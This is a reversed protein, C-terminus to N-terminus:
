AVRELHVNKWTPVAQRFDVAEGDCTFFLGAEFEVILKLDDLYLWGNKQQISVTQVPTGWQRLQYRGVYQAWGPDNPGPPDNTARDNYDLSIEGESCELHSPETGQAGFHRYTRVEGDAAARVASDPCVFRLPTAAGDEQFELGGDHRQLVVRSNRGVWSGVFRELQVPASDIPALDELTLRPTRKGYRQSLAADILREGFRYAAGAARNFLAAWALGAEPSYAFVSGFGFGGGKHSLLRLPTEGYRRESRIVGLGYDGGLAFGHMQHWLDEQLVTRGSAQGRNLHFQAYAAMDRASTYVGGSPMLPTRLPVTTHGAQHGVARNERREYVEPAVTSDAMGLPKFLRTSVWEAFPMGSRVQLIYGALDYGLNSYRYREGVPYRLWTAGISRVHAEFGPSNADYNNGVPAEHTLGARHSLLLRLTMRGQPAPEFRSQVAFDPVYATIPEDLDLIGDQVAILIAAATINKSTSQISFLTETSVPHGGPRDTVGFGEAWVREGNHIFCVAAGEIGAKAVTESIFRHEPAILAEVAAARSRRTPQAMAPLAAAGALDAGLAGILLSRRNISNV